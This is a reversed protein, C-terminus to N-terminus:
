MTVCRPCWWRSSLLISVYWGRCCGVQNNVPLVEIDFTQGYLKNGSSDEITYAFRVLRSEPGIDSLPPIYAVQVICVTTIGVQVTCITMVAVQVVCGTLAAM